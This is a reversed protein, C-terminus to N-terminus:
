RATQIRCGFTLHDTEFYDEKWCSKGSGDLSYVYTLKLKGWTPQSDSGFFISESLGATAPVTATQAYMKEFEIRAEEGYYTGGAFATTSFIFIGLAILHKM